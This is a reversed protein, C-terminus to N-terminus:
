STYNRCLALVTQSDVQDIWLELTPERGRFDDDLLMKTGKLITHESRRILIFFVKTKKKKKKKKWTCSNSIVRNTDMLDIPFFVFFFFITTSKEM